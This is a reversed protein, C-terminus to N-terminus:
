ATPAQVHPSPLAFLHVFRHLAAADGQVMVRRSALAEEPSLEGHLLAGLTSVEMSLVVDSYAPQGENTTCRGDAVRAAFVQNGVRLEYMERLDVAAQPRFAARM